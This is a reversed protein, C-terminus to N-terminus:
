SNLCDIPFSFSAGHPPWEGSLDSGCCKRIKSGLLQVIIVLHKIYMALLSM